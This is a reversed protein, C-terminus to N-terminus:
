EGDDRVMTFFDVKTAATEAAAGRRAAAAAEGLPELIARDIRPRIAPSQYLADVLAAIEAKRHARGQVYAYGATGDALRLACRTVAMEGLNFAAGTGGTRGRVMVLGTEPRRLWDYAPKDPWIAWLGALAEDSAKALVGMAHARIETEPSM